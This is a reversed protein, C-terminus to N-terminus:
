WDKVQKTLTVGLYKIYNTAMTTEKTEKEAWKDDTNLLVVSKM